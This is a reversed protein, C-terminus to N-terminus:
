RKGRGVRVPRDVIAQLRDRIAARAEPPSLVEAHDVLGLVWSGFAAPNSFPV